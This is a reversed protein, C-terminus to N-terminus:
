FGFTGVLVSAYNVKQHLRHRIQVKQAAATAQVPDNEFYITYSLRQSSATWNSTDLRNQNFGPLGVIENPDASEQADFSVTDLENELRAKDKDEDQAGQACTSNTQAYLSAPLLTIAALWMILLFRGFKM